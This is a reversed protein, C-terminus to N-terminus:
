WIKKKSMAFVVCQRDTHSHIRANYPLLSYQRCFTICRASPNCFKDYTQWASTRAAATCICVDGNDNLTWQKRQTFLACIRNNNMTTCRSENSLQRYFRPQPRANQFSTATRNCSIVKIRKACSRSQMLMLLVLAFVYKNVISSMFSIIDMWKLQLLVSKIEALTKNIGRIYNMFKNVSVTLTRAEIGYRISTISHTKSRLRGSCIHFQLECAIRMCNVNILRRTADDIVYDMPNHHITCEVM